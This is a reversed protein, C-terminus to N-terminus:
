PLHRVDEDEGELAEGGASPTALLDVVEDVEGDKFTEVHLLEDLAVLDLLAEGLLHGIRGGDGLGVREHVVQVGDRVVEATEAAAM